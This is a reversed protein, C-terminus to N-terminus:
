ADTDRNRGSSKLYYTLEAVCRAYEELAEALKPNGGGRRGGQQAKKLEEDARRMRKLAEELSSKIAREVVDIDM